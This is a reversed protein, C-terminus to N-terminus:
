LILIILKCQPFFGPYIKKQFEERIILRNLLGTRYFGFRQIMKLRIVKQLTFIFLKMAKMQGFILLGSALTPTTTRMLYNCDAKIGKTVVCLTPTNFGECSYIKYGAPRLYIPM